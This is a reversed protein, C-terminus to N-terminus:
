HEKKQRYHLKINFNNIKLIYIKKSKQLKNKQEVKNSM